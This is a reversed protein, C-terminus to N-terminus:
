YIVSGLESVTSGASLVDCGLCSWTSICATSASCAAAASLCLMDAGRAQRSSAM